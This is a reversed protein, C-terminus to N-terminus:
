FWLLALKPLYGIHSTTQVGERSIDSPMEGATNSDTAEIDVYAADMVYFASKQAISEKTILEDVDSSVLLEAARRISYFSKGAIRYPIEPASTLSTDTGTIYFLENVM